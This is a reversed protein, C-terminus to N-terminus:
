KILEGSVRMLETESKKLEYRANIVRVKAEELIKQTEKTELVNAKGVKFRENSIMVLEEASKLNEQELKVMAQSLEVSKYQVYATANLAQKSKETFYRMNLANIKREQVLKSNKSGSYILWSATLGGNIGNQRNLLVFGAETQNRLFNYSAALNIQPMFGSRAEKIYSEANFENQQALLVSTNKSLMTSRWKEIESMDTVPIEPEVSFDFDPAKNILTNLNAKASLLQQNLKLLESQSKNEDTQIMLLDVKSDSGIQQRLTVLKKREQYLDLNQLTAEILQQIRTVEYYALIVQQITQEMQQRYQLAAAKEGAQLRSKLAFMKFGDFITWNVLLSANANMSQAGKRDQVTGNGFEQYSDLNAGGVGANFNVQPAMGANGWNNQAKAIDENGKSIVVDYNKELALRIADKLVLKEQSHLSFVNWVFLGIFVARRM